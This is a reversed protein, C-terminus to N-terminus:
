VHPKEQQRRELLTRCLSLPVPPVIKRRFIEAVFKRRFNLVPTASLRKRLFGALSFKRLFNTLVSNSGATFRLHRHVSRGSALSSLRADPSGACLARARDRAGGLGRRAAFRWRAGSPGCLGSQDLLRRQKAQHHAGHRLSPRAMTLIVNDPADAVAVAVGEPLNAQPPRRRPM